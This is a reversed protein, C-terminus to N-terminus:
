EVIEISGIVRTRTVAHKGVVHGSSFSTDKLFLSTEMRDHERDLYRHIMGRESARAMEDFADGLVRLAESIDGRFEGIPFGVSSTSM